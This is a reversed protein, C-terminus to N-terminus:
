HQRKKRSSIYIRWANTCNQCRCGHNSYESPSGHKEIRPNNRTRKARWEDDYKIAGTAIAHRINESRTCWELNSIGNNTKDGDIHNVFQKSVIKDLYTLAVLRHVYFRKYSKDKFLNVQLYGTGNDSPKMYMNKKYSFVKGDETVGYLGEYGSINRM